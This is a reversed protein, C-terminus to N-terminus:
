RTYKTFKYSIGNETQTESEWALKMVGASVLEDLNEFHKDAEYEGDIKTVLFETCYPLFINYINEGGAVMVDEDLDIGESFELTLLITMLHDFNNAILVRGGEKAEAEYNEDSTMVVTTRGPLAKGGPLSELTKRGMILVKGLTQEKFYKLDGPLHVLLANDKGIGWNKDVAVITKM